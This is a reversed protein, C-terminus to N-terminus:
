PLQDFEGAKVARILARLRASTTTIIVDPEDSERIKVAGPGTAAVYVCSSAEPSYSSKQWDYPSV